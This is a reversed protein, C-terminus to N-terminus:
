QVEYGAIVTVPYYGASESVEWVECSEIIELSVIAEKIPM